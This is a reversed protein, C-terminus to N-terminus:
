VIPGVSVARNAAIENPQLEVNSRSMTNQLFPYILSRLNDSRYAIYPAGDETRLRLWRKPYVDRPILFYDLPSSNNKDLRVLLIVDAKLSERVALHWSSSRPRPKYSIVAVFLLVGPAVPILRDRRDGEGAGGLEMMWRCITDVTDGACVRSRSFTPVDDYSTPPTYGILNYANRLSGFHTQVIQAWPLKADHNLNSVYLRGKKRAHARLSSLLRRDTHKKFVQQAQEFTEQDVIAEFANDARIWLEPPNTRRGTRLRYTFRGFINHGAYKENQLMYGVTSYNWPRGHRGPIGESNLQKAIGNTGVGETYMRFIRRVVEVEAEPGQVLIVRATTLSKQENDRLLTIPAGEATIMQRRFGYPAKCGVLFGLQALRAKGTFVKVSLERSYEAAMTRKLSKVLNSFASGDNEFQEGCYVIKMGAQRCLFEYHASEDIDQFRGWRSIDYVLVVQFSAEGSVVDSLLKKLGDRNKILLGSKGADSYVQVVELLHESAYRHIADLQNAISYRQHDTSMRVYAAARGLPANM